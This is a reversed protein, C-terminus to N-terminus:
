KNQKTYVGMTDLWDWAHTMGTATTPAIRPTMMMM